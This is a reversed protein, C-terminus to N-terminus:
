ILIVPAGFFLLHLWRFDFELTTTLVRAITHAINLSAHATRKLEANAM